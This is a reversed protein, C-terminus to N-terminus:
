NLGEEVLITDQASILFRCGWAEAVRAHDDYELRLDDGTGTIKWALGGYPFAAGGSTVGSKVLRAVPPCPPAGGCVRGVRDSILKHFRQEIVSLGAVTREDLSPVAPMVAALPIAAASNNVIPCKAYVGRMSLYFAMDKTAVLAMGRGKESLELWTENVVTAIAASCHKMAMLDVVVGKYESIMLRRIAELLPQAAYDEWSPTFGMCAARQRNFEDVDPPPFVSVVAVGLAAQEVRVEAAM